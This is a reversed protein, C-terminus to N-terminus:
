FGALLARMWNQGAPGWAAAKCIYIYGSTAVGAVITNAEAAAASTAPISSGIKWASAQAATVSHPNSVDGTHTALAGIAVAGVQAATVAHPNSADAKHTNINVANSAISVEGSAIQGVVIEVQSAIPDVQTDLLAREIATPNTGPM